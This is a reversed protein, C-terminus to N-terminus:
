YLESMWESDHAPNYILGQKIDLCLDLDELLLHGILVPTGEPVGLVTTISERALLTFQVPSYIWLETLGNVTRVPESRFPTLGLQDILSPPLGLRTAGTDVLADEVTIRRVDEPNMVGANALVLEDNNALEIRATHRM